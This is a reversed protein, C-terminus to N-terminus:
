LRETGWDDERFPDRQRGSARRSARGGSTSGNRSVAAVSTGELQVLKPFGGIGSRLRCPKPGAHRLMAEWAVIYNGDDSWSVRSAPLANFPGSKRRTSLDWLHLGERGTSALRLGNPSFAIDSITGAPYIRELLAGFKLDFIDLGYKASAVVLLKSDPSFAVAAGGSAFTKVPKGSAVDWVTTTPPVTSTSALLRDDKSFALQSIGSSSGTLTRALFYQHALGAVFTSRPKQFDTVGATIEGWLSGITKIPPASIIPRAVPAGTTEGLVPPTPLEFQHDRLNGGDFNLGVVRFGESSM